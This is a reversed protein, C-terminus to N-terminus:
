DTRAGSQPRRGTHSRLGGSLSHSSIRGSLFALEGAAFLCVMLSSVAPVLSRPLVSQGNM